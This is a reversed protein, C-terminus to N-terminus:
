NRRDFRPFSTRCAHHCLDSEQHRVVTLLAKQEQSLGATHRLTYAFNSWILWAENILSLPQDWAGLDDASRGRVEAASAATFLRAVALLRPSCRQLSRGFELELNAQM